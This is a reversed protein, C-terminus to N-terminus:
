WTSEDSTFFILTWLAVLLMIPWLFLCSALAMNRAGNTWIIGEEHLAARLACYSLFTMLLWATVAIAVSATVAIAVLIGVELMEM